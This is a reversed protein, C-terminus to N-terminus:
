YAYDPLESEIALPLIIKICTNYGDSPEAVSIEGHMETIIQETISLGLGMGRNYANDSSYAEAPVETTYLPTFVDAWKNEPIGDGNDEFRITMFDSSTKVDILLHGHQRGAREIAKCANTFLNIFISMIESVHVKKTWIDWSDFNTKIEYGRRKTTPEMAVMFKKVLKIMDYHNKERNSNSRMTGDFFDTYAILMGLNDELQTSITKIKDDVHSFGELAQSNLSMNTICTQIEHTFESIALGTSALVRYMLQEDIYEKLTETVNELDEIFDSTFKHSDNENNTSEDDSNGQNADNPEREDTTSGEQKQQNVRQQEVKLKLALLQEKLSDETSKRKSKFGKQSATVKKERIIAVHSSIKMALAKTIETLIKFSENEIVGERSSTEEFLVGKADSVFVKGIFNTNAHPPLIKRRRSSEDLALWDNYPEGYPAVNFGNRYFKIGGNNNLYNQLGKVSKSESALTFYLLEVKYDVQKLVERYLEYLKLIDNFREDHESEVVVELYGDSHMKATVSLDAASIYESVDDLEILKSKDSGFYYFKPSFGPDYSVSDKRYIIINSIYNFTTKINNETWAERVDDIILLTGREFTYGNKIYSIKNSISNITIGPEFMDWFIDLCLYQSDNIRKTILKLKKGIKQASFRGIGKKGARPRSYLKSIPNSVKDSTSITMFGKVLEEYSMGCGDDFVTIRGGPQDTHSFEVEVSSADADYANKVIESLATTKKAVLQEGLREVLKADVTFRVNEQDYNAIASSLELLRGYDIKEKLSVDNTESDNGSILKLLEKKLEEENSM